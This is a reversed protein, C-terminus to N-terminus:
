QKRYQCGTVIAAGEPKLTLDASGTVSAVFVPTTIDSASLVGLTVPLKSQSWADDSLTV